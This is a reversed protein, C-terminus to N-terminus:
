ATRRRLVDVGGAEPGIAVRACASQADCEVIPAVRDLEGGGGNSMRLRKGCCVSRSDDKTDRIKSAIEQPRQALGLNVIGTREVVGEQALFADNRETHVPLARRPMDRQPVSRAIALRRM